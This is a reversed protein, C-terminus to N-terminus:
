RQKWKGKEDQYWWGESARDIWRTAFTARIDAEWEPHGNVVAIEHYLELRDQNEEAAWKKVDNRSKLPVKAADHLVILATNTLGIAGSNYHPLLQQHRKKMNTTLTQIAPSSVDLNAQQAYVPPIIFNVLPTIWKSPLPLLSDKDSGSPQKPPETPQKPPESKNSKPEMGYVKSVIRDAAEQAAAAPFYVNITVCASLIIGLLILAIPFHLKPM